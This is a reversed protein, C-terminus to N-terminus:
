TQFCQEDKFVPTLSRRSTWYGYNSPLVLLSVPDLVVAWVKTWARLGAVKWSVGPHKELPGAARVLWGDEDEQSSLATSTWPKCEWSHVNQFYLLGLTLHGWCESPLWRTLLVRFIDWLTVPLSCILPVWPEEGAGLLSRWNVKLTFICLYSKPWM